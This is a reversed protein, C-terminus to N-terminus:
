GVLLTLVSFTVFCCQDWGSVGGVPRVMEESLVPSLTHEREGVGTASVLFCSYVVFSIIILAFLKFKAIVNIVDILLLTPM